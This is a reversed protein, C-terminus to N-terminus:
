AVGAPGAPPDRPQAEAAQIRQRWSPRSARKELNAVTDGIVDRIAKDIEDSGLLDTIADFAREEAHHLMTEIGSIRGLAGLAGAPLQEARLKELLPEKNTKLAASIARAFSARAVEEGMHRAVNRTVEDVIESEVLDLVSIAFREAFGDGLTRDVARAARAAVLIWLVIRGHYGYAVLAFGPVMAIFDFFHLGVYRTGHWHLGSRTWFEYLSFLTIAVDIAVLGFPVTPQPELAWGALLAFSLIATGFAMWHVFRSRATRGLAGADALRFPVVAAM